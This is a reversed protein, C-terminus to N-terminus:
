MKVIEKIKEFANVWVDDLREIEGATLKDMVYDSISADADKGNRIGIRLRPFNSTGLREIISKMGNHGGSSGSMRLRIVGLDLYIDDYIILINKPAIRRRRAIAAICEGSLNMYTQPKVLIFKNKVEGVLGRWKRKTIKVGLEKALKDLMFFGVNHRTNIYEGGPNGLGAILFM